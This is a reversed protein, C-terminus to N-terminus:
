FGIEKPKIFKKMFSFKLTGFMGIDEECGRLSKVKIGSDEACDLLKNFDEISLDWYGPNNNIGHLVLILWKNKKQADAIKECLEDINTTSFVGESNHLFGGTDINYNDRVINYHMNAQELIDDDYNRYPFSFSDVVFGNEELIRKSEKLEKELEKAELETSKQHTLTHSGIEFGNDQMEMMEEISMLDRDEFQTLNMIVFFTGGFNREKLLPYVNDYHSELRDDFTFSLCSDNRPNDFNTADIFVIVGLFISLLVIIMSVFLM